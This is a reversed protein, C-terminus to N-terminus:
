APSKINFLRELMLHLHIILRITKAQITLFFEQNKLCTRLSQPDVWVRTSNLQFCSWYCAFKWHTEAEQEPSSGLPLRGRSFHVLFTTALVLYEPQIYPHAGEASPFWGLDPPITKKPPKLFNQLIIGSSLIFRVCHYFVALGIHWVSGSPGPKEAVQTATSHVM